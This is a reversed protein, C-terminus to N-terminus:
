PVEEPVLEFGQQAGEEPAEEGLFFGRLFRKGQFLDMGLWGRTIDAFDIAREEAAGGQTAIRTTFILRGTFELLAEIFFGREGFRM